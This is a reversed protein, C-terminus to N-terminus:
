LDLVELVRLEEREELQIGRAMLAKWPYLMFLTNDAMTVITYKGSPIFKIFVSVLIFLFVLVGFNNLKIYKFSLSWARDWEM